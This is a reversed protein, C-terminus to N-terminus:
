VLACSQHSRTTNQMLSCFVLLRPSAGRPGFGLLAVRDNGDLANAHRRQRSGVM